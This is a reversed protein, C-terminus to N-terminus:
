GASNGDQAKLRELKEAAKAFVEAQKKAYEAEDVTRIMPVDTGRSLRGLSDSIKELSAVVDPLGKVKITKLNKYGALDLETSETYRTGDVGDYSVVCAFRLGPYRDSFRDWYAVYGTLERGPALSAIPHSTLPMSEERETAPICNKGGLLCKLDPEIKVRLSRASTQGLNRLSATVVGNNSLIEFVVHPRVRQAEIAIAHALQKNTLRVLYFTAAVYIGTLVVTALTLLASTAGQNKNLWDVVQEITGM